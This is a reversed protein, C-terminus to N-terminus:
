FPRQDVRRHRRREGRRGRRRGSTAFVIPGPYADVRAVLTSREDDTLRTTPRTGLLADAEELLIVTGARDALDLLEALNKETEGIYKSTIATLNIRHVTAGTALALEEAKAAALEAPLTLRQKHFVVPPKPESVGAARIVRLVVFEAPKLPAFGVIIVMRGADIDAPTTTSQDCRVFFAEKPTTGVFAGRHWHDMLFAEVAVRVRSWLEEDNAEFAAWQTGSEVSRELYMATRRVSVYQVAPETSSPSALTRAGWAVHGLHDFHRLGNIGEITLASNEDDTLRHDLGVVGRLVADVGAPAKWVGTDADVRAYVGAMTGSAARTTSTDGGLEDPIIPRPVYLAAHESRLAGHASLWADIAQVTDRTADVQPPDVILFARNSACLAQAAMIVGAAPADHLAATDPVCLIGFDHGGLADLAAVLDLGGDADARVIMAIAGGNTFFQRVAYALEHDAAPGFAAEFETFSTVRTPVGIPGTEAWGVFAAIASDTATIAPPPSAIDPM